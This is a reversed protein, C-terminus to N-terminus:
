RQGEVLIPLNVFGPQDIPGAGLQGSSGRGWCYALPEATSACTHTAGATVSVFSATGAVRTPAHRDVASADGLQGLSNSGWCYVTEGPVVGCTHADGAAVASFGLGGSVAVPQSRDATTGDGLQGQDNAGWCLAAGTTTVGCSHAEGATVQAFAHGGGVPVPELRDTLTGDGLQGRDNLGWCYAESGTTVGCTHSAGASVQAFALGGFVLAPNVRNTTTTDGLQGRDNLGWCYAEDGTTVGCTHSAGASVQAFALGGAVIVPDEPDELPGGIQGSDNNGWCWAAGAADIACTHAGGAAVQALTPIRSSIVEGPVNRSNEPRGLQGSSGAGWCYAVSDAAIGCTHRDGAELAAFVIPLSVLVSASGSRLEVKATVTASGKEVATVVGTSSVMAVAEDSSEWTVPRDTLANGARDRVTLVLHATDGKLLELSSPSVEVTNARGLVTLRARGTVDDVTATIGAIGGGIGAARGQQDVTAVTADTSGWIVERDIVSGLQERVTAQMQLTDGLNITASDPSVIVALVRATGQSMPPEVGCAAVLLAGLIPSGKLAAMPVAAARLGLLRM